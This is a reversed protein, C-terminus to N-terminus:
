LILPPHICFENLIHGHANPIEKIPYNLSQNVHSSLPNLKHMESAGIKSYNRLTLREDNNNKSM